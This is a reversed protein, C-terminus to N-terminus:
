GTKELGQNQAREWPPLWALGPLPGIPFPHGDVFVPVVCPDAIPWPKARHSHDVVRHRDVIRPAYIVGPPAAQDGQYGPEARIPIWKQRVVDGPRRYAFLRPLRVFGPTLFFLNVGRPSKMSLRADRNIAGALPPVMGLRASKM